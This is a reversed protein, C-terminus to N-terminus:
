VLIAKQINLHLHMNTSNWEITFSDQHVKTFKEMLKNTSTEDMWSLGMWGPQNINKLSISAQTM